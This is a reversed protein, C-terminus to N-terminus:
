ENSAVDFPTVVVLAGSEIDQRANTLMDTLEDTLMPEYVGFGALDVGAGIEYALVQPRRTKEFAAVVDTVAQEYDVVIGSLTPAGVYALFDPSLPLTSYPARAANSQRANAGSQTPSSSEGDETLDRPSATAWILRVGPAGAEHIAAVAGENFGAAIPMIIDAGAAIMDAVGAQVQATSGPADVITGTRTAPNWGVLNVSTGHTLNYAEVGQAFADIMALTADDGLGGLAGVSGTTTMGAATIGALYAPQTARLDVCIGNDPSAANGREDVFRAGLLAFDIDPHARAADSVATALLSDTAIILSCSENLLSAIGEEGEAFRTDAGTAVAVSAIAERIEDSADNAAWGPISSAACIIAHEDPDADDAQPSACAALAFVSAAAILARAAHKNM